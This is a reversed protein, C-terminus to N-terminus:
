LTLKLNFGLYNNGSAVPIYVPQVSFSLSDDINFNNLHSYILADAVNLLYVGAMVLISIEYKRKFDGRKDLLDLNSSLFDQNENAFCKEILAEDEFNYRVRNLYHETFCQKRNYYHTAFVGSGALLAWFVPVKWYQKNAIQGLGPLAASRYASLLPSYGKNKSQAKIKASAFADFINAIYMFGAMAFASNSIIRANNQKTRLRSRISDAEISLPMTLNISDTFKNFRSRYRLGTVVSLAITGPYIPTKYIQRNFAQGLGPVGTSLLVARKIKKKNIIKESAISDQVEVITDNSNITNITDAKLIKNEEVVNQGFTINPCFIYFILVHLFLKFKM